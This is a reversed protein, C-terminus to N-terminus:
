YNEIIDKLYSEKSKEYYYIWSPENGHSYYYCYNNTCIVPHDNQLFLFKKSEDDIVGTLTYGGYTDYDYMIEILYKKSKTCRFTTINFRTLGYTCKEEGHHKFDCNKFTNLFKVKYKDKPLDKKEDCLTIYNDNKYYICNSWCITESFDSFLKDFNIYKQM